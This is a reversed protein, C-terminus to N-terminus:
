WRYKEWRANWVDLGTCASNAITPAALTRGNQAAIRQFALALGNTDEIGARVDYYNKSFSSAGWAYGNRILHERIPPDSVNVTPGTGSYGHAYMVLM